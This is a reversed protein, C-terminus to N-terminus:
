GGVPWNLVMRRQIETQPSSQWADSVNQRLRIIEELAAEGSLGHRVLYCGVVTGTRGIGAWCHVYVVRDSALADDIADLIQRMREPTPTGMDPISINRHEGLGGLAEVEAQLLLDYPKLGYENPETLNLFLTIGAELFRRLKLRSEKDHRTRPYEGALLRGPRVWYSDPIPIASAQRKNQNSM